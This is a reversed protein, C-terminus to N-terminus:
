PKPSTLWLRPKHDMGRFRMVVVDRIVVALWDLDFGFLSVPQESISSGSLPFTLKREEKMSIIVFLM